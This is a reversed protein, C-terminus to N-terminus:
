VYICARPTTRTGSGGDVIREFAREAKQCTSLVAHMMAGKGGGVADGGLVELERQAASISSEIYAQKTFIYM